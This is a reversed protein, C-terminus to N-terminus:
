EKHVWSGASYITKTSSQMQYARSLSESGVGLSVLVINLGQAEAVTYTLALPTGSYATAGRLSEGDPASKYEMLAYGKERISRVLTVGYADPTPQQLYFMTKAPPFLEVLKKVSDAAMKQENKAIPTEVFNGVKGQTACGVVGTLLLISIAVRRM